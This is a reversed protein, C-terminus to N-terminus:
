LTKFTYRPMILHHYRPAQPYPCLAKGPYPGHHGRPTGKLRAEGAQFLPSLSSAALGTGPSGAWIYVAPRKWGGQALDSELHPPGTAARRSTALRRTQPAQRWRDKQLSSCTCLRSACSPTQCPGASSVTSSGQPAPYPSSTALPFKLKTESM